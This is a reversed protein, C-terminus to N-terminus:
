LIARNSLFKPALDPRGALDLAEKVLSDFHPKMLQRRRPFPEEFFEPFEDDNFPFDRPFELSPFRVHRPRRRPADDSPKPALCSPGSPTYLTSPTRPHNHVQTPDHHAKCGPCDNVLRESFTQAKPPKEGGSVSGRDRRDLYDVMPKYYGNQYDYNYDYTKSKPRDWHGGGM